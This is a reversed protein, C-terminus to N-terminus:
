IQFIMLYTSSMLYFFPYRLEHRQNFLELLSWAYSIVHGKGREPNDTVQFEFVLNASPHSSMQQLQSTANILCFLNDEEDRECPLPGMVTPPVVEQGNVYIGYVIQIFYVKDPLGFCFDWHVRFGEAPNYYKQTNRPRAKNPHSHHAYRSDESANSMNSVPRDAPNIGNGAQLDILKRRLGDTFQNREFEKDEERRIVDNRYKLKMVRQEQVVKEIEARTASIDKFQELKFKYLETDPPILSLMRMSDVEQAALSALVKEEETLEGTRNEAIHYFQRTDVLQSYKKANDFSNQRIEPLKSVSSSRVPAGPGRLLQVKKVEEIQRRLDENRQDKEEILRRIEDAKTPAQSFAPASGKRILVIQNEPGDFESSEPTYVERTREYLSQQQKRRREINELAKLVTPNGGGNEM